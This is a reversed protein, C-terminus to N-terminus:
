STPIKADAQRTETTSISGSNNGVPRSTVFFKVSAMSGLQTALVSLIASEAKDDECEDLADIIFVIPLKKSKVPDAKLIEIFCQLPDVLVNKLQHALSEYGM